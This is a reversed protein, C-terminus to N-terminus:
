QNDSSKNWEIWRGDRYRYFLQAGESAGYFYLWSASVNQYLFPYLQQDTWLWGMFDKWLWVGNQGSAMPYLWGLESHMIWANGDNMYFSGLWPSTWWNAASGAQANAWSPGVSHEQAEFDKVVGYGIGEANMAYTRYFYKTGKELGMMMVEFTQNTDLFGRELIVGNTDLYPNPDTSILMGIQILDMSSGKDLLKGPLIAEQFGVDVPDGTEVIPIFTDVVQITLNQDLHAGLSDTVRLAITHSSNSEFDLEQKTLMTGNSDLSFFEAGTTNTHFSYQYVGTGNPDDYDITRLQGVMTGIPMNEEVRDPSLSIQSPAQNEFVDTLTVTFNGEVTANHEDKAQVRISYTSANTEFDFITSTRLTGNTELSFLDFKYPNGTPLKDVFGWKHALYGHVKQRQFDSLNQLVIFEGIEGNFKNPNVSTRGAIGLNEIKHASFKRNFAKLTFRPSSGGSLFDGLYWNPAVWDNEWTVSSSLMRPYDELDSEQQAVLFVDFSSEVSLITGVELIDSIGDFGILSIGNKEILSPMADVNSQNAHFNNGSKDRWQSIQSVGIITSRDNADLWLLPSFGEFTPPAFLYTILGGEPDTANFEGVITGIPQNESITLEATYNLDTPPETIQRFALRFGLGEDRKSSSSYDRWYSPLKHKSNYFTGGRQVRYLISANENIPDVRPESVYPLFVDKVWEFVNGHMDFFGWPNPPYDGVSATGGEIFGYYNALSTNIDDGFSYSSTTGARCAYEWQAETPLAYSWGNPLNAVEHENLRGIFVQIDNWSVQEVPCNPNGANLSPTSSIVDGNSDTVLNGTMVVEYQAQTVEYKGLYFGKTLTVEHAPKYSRYEDTNQGMTFTGPEVWIMELDVTSNLEVFHNPQSTTYIPQIAATGGSSVNQDFGGDDTYSAMVTIASGLDAHLLTYNADKAFGYTLLGSQSERTFKSLADEGWSTVYVSRGDASLSISSPTALGDVGDLGDKLMGGFDLGGSTANRDYWSVANGGWGVIYLQKEDHSLIFHSATQLGDVGNVGNKLVGVFTLAGNSANREFWGLSSDTAAALYAFKGDSTLAISRAGDLGDVGSAQDKLIGVFTLDGTITDRDYWSVSDDGASTLYVHQDNPSLAVDYASSLGDLGNVGDKLSGLFTLAGSTSNVEYWSVANDNWGTVYAHRSDNSLGINHPGNLGDVGGVGDELIGLYSLTGTSTNRDFWSISDGEGGAVFAFEGDGSLVMNRPGDLGNVGNVGDKLLSKFSLEGTTANREYHSVSDDGFGLVYVHKNDASCLVQTAKGLGDVSGNGDQFTGGLVIPVGDRYWQYSVVGMGDGDTLSNSANLTQGVVSTGSVTVSGITPENLNIVVVTFNGEVTANFEDKAQVRISYTSANTEYDFTTATKLTGNSELSFLSNNGDGAGSVLHYTLTSNTDPDTANLDGVISGIPLNEAITLPALPILNIPNNNSVRAVSRFYLDQQLLLDAAYVQNTYFSSGLDGAIMYVKEGLV